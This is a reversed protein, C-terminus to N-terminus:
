GNDPLTVGLAAVKEALRRKLEEDSVNEFKVASGDPGSIEQQVKDGFERPRIKSARWRYHHALERAKKFGFEDPADRVVEEAKEDWRRAMLSRSDMARASREPSAEIWALLSGISVKANIAIQTLSVENGIEDCVHDIGLADLKAQADGYSNVPKAEKDPKKAM